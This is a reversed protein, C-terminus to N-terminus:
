KLEGEANRKRRKKKMTLGHGLLWEEPQKQTPMELGYLHADIMKLSLPYFDWWLDDNGIARCHASVQRAVRAWRLATFVCVPAMVPGEVAQTPAQAARAKLLEDRRLRRM